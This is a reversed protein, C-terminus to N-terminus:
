CFETKITAQELWYEEDGFGGEKVLHVLVVQEGEIASILASYNSSYFGGEVYDELRCGDEDFLNFYSAKGQCPMNAILIWGMCDYREIRM